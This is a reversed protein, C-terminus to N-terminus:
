GKNLKALLEAVDEIDDNEESVTSITIDKGKINTSELEIPPIFGLEIDKEKSKRDYIKDNVQRSDMLFKLEDLRNLIQEAPVSNQERKQLTEITKELTEIKKNVKEKFKNLSADENFDKSTYIKRGSEHESVIEYNEIGKTKLTAAVLPLSLRTIDIEVPSRVPPMGPLEIYHGKERIRLVVM